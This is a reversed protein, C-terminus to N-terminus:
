PTDPLQLFRPSVALPARSEHANAVATAVLPARHAHAIPTVTFSASCAFDGLNESEQGGGVSESESEGVRGALRTGDRRAARFQGIAM